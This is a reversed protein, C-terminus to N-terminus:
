NKNALTEYNENKKKSQESAFKDVDSFFKLLDRGQKQWIKYWMSIFDRPPKQDKELFFLHAKLVRKHFLDEVTKITDLPLKKVKSNNTLQKAKTQNFISKHILDDRTSKFDRYREFSFKDVLNFSSACQLVTEANVRDNWSKGHSNYFIEPFSLKIVTDIYQDAMAYAEIFHGSDIDQIIWADIDTIKSYALPGEEKRPDYRSYRKFLERALEKQEKELWVKEAKWFQGNDIKDGNEDKILGALKDYHALIQELTANEGADRKARDYKDSNNNLTYERDGIKLKIEHM